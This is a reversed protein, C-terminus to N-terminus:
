KNELSRGHMKLLAELSDTDLSQLRSLAHDRRSKGPAAYVRKRGINSSHLLQKSLITLKKNLTHSRLFVSSKRKKKIDFVEELPTLDDLYLLIHMRLSEPLSCLPIISPSSPQEFIYSGYEIALEQLFSQISLGESDKRVRVTCMPVTMRIKPHYSLIGGSTSVEILLNLAGSGQETAKVNSKKSVNINQSSFISGAESCAMSIDHHLTAGIDVDFKGLQLNAYRINSEHNVLEYPVNSQILRVHAAYSESSQQTPPSPVGLLRSATCPLHVEGGHSLPEKPMADMGAVILTQQHAGAYDNVKVSGVHFTMDRMFQEDSDVQSEEFHIREGILQWFRFRLGSEVRSRVAEVRVVLQSVFLGSLYVSDPEMFPPFSGDILSRSASAGVGDIDIVDADQDSIDESSDQSVKKLTFVSKMYELSELSSRDVNIELPDTLSLCFVFGPLPMCNSTSSISKRQLCQNWCYFCDNLPLHSTTCDDRHCRQAMWQFDSQFPITQIDNADGESTVDSLQKCMKDQRTDDKSEHRKLSMPDVYDVGFLMSDMTYDEYENGWAQDIDEPEEKKIDVLMRAHFDLGSCRFMVSQSSELFIGRAWNPDNPHRGGQPVTAKRMPPYIKLWVGGDPGKGTRIRKRRYVQEPRSQNSSVLHKGESNSSPTGSGVSKSRRFSYAPSKPRPSGPTPNDTDFRLVDLFDDGSTVSLFDVGLEFVTCEDCSDTTSEDDEKEEGPLIFSVRCDRLFLHPIMSLYRALKSRKKIKEGIKAKNEGEDALISLDAESSSTTTRELDPESDGAKSTKDSPKADHGEDDVIVEVVLHADEITVHLEREVLRINLTGIVGGAGVALILDDEVVDEEIVEMFSDDDDDDNERVGNKEVTLHPENRASEVRPERHWQDEKGHEYQGNWQDPDSPSSRKSTGSNHRHSTSEIKTKANACLASTVGCIGHRSQTPTSPSSSFYGNESDSAFSRDSNHTRENLAQAHERRLDAYENEGGTTTADLQNDVSVDRSKPQLVFPGEVEDAKITNTSAGTVDINGKGKSRRVRKKKTVVRKRKGPLKMLTMGERLKVNSLRVGWGSGSTANKSKGSNDDASAAASSAGYNISELEINELYKRLFTKLTRSLLSKAVYSFM